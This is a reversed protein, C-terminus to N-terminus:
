FNNFSKSNNNLIIIKMIIMTKIKAKKTDKKNHIILGYAIKWDAM